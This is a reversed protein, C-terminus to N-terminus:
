VCKRNLELMVKQVFTNIDTYNRVKRAKAAKQISKKFYMTIQLAKYVM